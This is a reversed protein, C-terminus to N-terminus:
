WCVLLIHSFDFLTKTGIQTFWWFHWTWRDPLGVLAMLKPATLGL